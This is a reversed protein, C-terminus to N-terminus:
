RAADAPRELRERSRTTRWFVWGALGWGALLLWELPVGRGQVAPALLGALAMGAAGVLALVVIPTGGPVRFHPAPADPGGAARLRLLAVMSVVYSFALCISVMNVLPLVAGRGLPILLLTLLTVCAVARVPAGTVRHESAIWRPLMRAHAQAVLLKSGMVVLANWTKLLSVCAVSLIITTMVGPPGLPEFAVITPLEVSALEQWPRQSAASVVVLCYFLGAAVLAWVMTLVVGRVELTPRRDEIAYVAVQFGNLFMACTAFIWLAGVFWDSATTTAFPPELNGPEGHALGLAVVVLTVALFGYTAVNQLRISAGIGRANVVGLAVCVGAGLLLASWTVREGFLGYGAVDAFGPFLKGVFLAIVVGEFAGVAIASLTLFWGVAFGAAPGLATRAYEFEGGAVPLRAALEAYGLGIVIVVAAGAVFGVLAGGPGAIRLWEGLVALWASGIMTGFALAFFGARGVVRTRAITGRPTRSGTDAGEDVM